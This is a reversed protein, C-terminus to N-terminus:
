EFSLIRKTMKLHNECDRIYNQDEEVRATALALSVKLCITEETLLAALAEQSKSTGRRNLRVCAGILKRAAKRVARQVYAESLQTVRTADAYAELRARDLVVRVKEDGNPLWEAPKRSAAAAAPAVAVALVRKLCEKLHHGEMSDSYPNLSVNDRVCRTFVVALPYFTECYRGEPVESNDDDMEEWAEVRAFAESCKLKLIQDNFSRRYKRSLLNEREFGCRKKREVPPVSEDNYDEDEEDYQDESNEEEEEEEEEGEEEEEEEEEGEEEEGEEEEEEEEEEEGEEEDGEEEGEEEEKSQDPSSEVSASAALAASAAAAAVRQSRRRSSSDATRIRSKSRRNKLCRAAAATELPFISVAASDPTQFIVNDNKNKEKEEEEEEEEQEEDKNEKAEEEEEGERFAEAAASASASASVSVSDSDVVEMSVEKLLPPLDSYCPTAPFTTKPFVVSSLSPFLNYHLFPAHSHSSFCMSNSLTEKIQNKLAELDKEEEEEKKEDKEGRVRGEESELFTAVAVAAEEEEEEEAEAFDDEGIEMKSVSVSYDESDEEEEEEKKKKRESYDFVPSKTNKLLLKQSASYDFTSPSPLPLAM